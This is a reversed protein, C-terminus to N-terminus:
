TGVPLREGQLLLGILHNKLQCAFVTDLHNTGIVAVKLVLLRSLSVVMQEAQGRCLIEVVGRAHEVSLLLPELRPFLHVVDEGIHRFRETVGQFHEVFHLGVANLVSRNHGEEGDGLTETGLLFPAPLEGLLVQKLLEGGVLVALVRQGRVLRLGDDVTQTPVVLNVADLELGVIQSVEGIRTGLLAIAVRQRLIHRLVDVELKMYHLGHTERAVEEYHLVKDVRGTLLKADPHPRATAASGTRHHGVTQADRLNVWQLIVQQELTEEIGVTHVERINIGVEIIITAALHEAPHHILVAM